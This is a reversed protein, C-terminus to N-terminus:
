PTPTIDLSYNPIPWSPENVASCIEESPANVSASNPEVGKSPTSRAECNGNDLVIQQLDESDQPYCPPVAM